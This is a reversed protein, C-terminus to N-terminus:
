FSLTRFEGKSASCTRCVLAHEGGSRPPDHAWGTWVGGDCEWHPFKGECAGCVFDGVTGITTRDGTALIARRVADRFPWQYDV